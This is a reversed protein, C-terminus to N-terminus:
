NIAQGIKETNQDYLGEVSTGTLQIGAIAAVAVLSAVLAYEIATAGRTDHLFSGIM